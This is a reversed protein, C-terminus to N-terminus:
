ISKRVYKKSNNRKNNIKVCARCRRHTATEWKTNEETFEHGNKCFKKNKHPIYMRNKKVADIVNQKQTGLKLHRINICCRTDCIHMIVKNRSIKGFYLEYVLRHVTRTKKNICISGYGGTDCSGTWLLCGTNPEPIARAEIKEIPKELERM